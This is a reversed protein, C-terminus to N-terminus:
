CVGGVAGFVGVFGRAGGVDLLDGGSDVGVGDAVRDEDEAVGVRAVRADGVVDGEEGGLVAEGVGPDLELVRAGRGRGFEEALVGRGGVGALGDVLEEVAAGLQQGEGGGVEAVVRGVEQLGVAGDQGVVVGDVGGEVPGDGGGQALGVEVAPGVPRPEGVHRGEGRRRRGVARRQRQAAGVAEVGDRQLQRVARRERVAAGAAGRLAQRQRRVLRDAAQTQALVLVVVM